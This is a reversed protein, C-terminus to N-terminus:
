SVVHLQRMDHEDGAQSTQEPDQHHDGQTPCKDDSFVLFQLVRFPGGARLDQDDTLLAAGTGARDEGPESKCRDILEDHLRHSEPDVHWALRNAAELSRDDGALDRRGQQPHAVDNPRSDGADHHGATHERRQDQRRHDGVESGVGGARDRGRRARDAGHRGGLNLPVVDKINTGAGHRRPADDADELDQRHDEGRDPRGEAVQGRLPLRGVGM